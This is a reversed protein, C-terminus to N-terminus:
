LESNTEVNTRTSYIGEEDKDKAQKPAFPGKKYYAMVGVAAAVLILLCTFMKTFIAIRHESAIESITVAWM